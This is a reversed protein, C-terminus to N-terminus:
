TYGNRRDKCASCTCDPFYKAAFAPPPAPVLKKRKWWEANWLRRLCYSRIVSLVTMVGTFASFQAVSIDLHMVYFLGAQGSAQIVIGVVINALSEVLSAKRSQTRLEAV